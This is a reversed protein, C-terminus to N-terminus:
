AGHGVLLEDSRAQPDMGPKWDPKGFKTLTMPRGYFTDGAKDRVLGARSAGHM